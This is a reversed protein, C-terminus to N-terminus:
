HCGGKSEQTGQSGQSSPASSSFFFFICFLSTRRENYPIRCWVKTSCVRNLLRRRPSYSLLVSYLNSRPRTHRRPAFKPSRRPPPNPRRIRGELVRTLVNHPRLPRPNARKRPRPSQVAGRVTKHSPLVVLNSSLFSPNTSSPLPPPIRRCWWRRRRPRTPQPPTQQPLNPSPFISSVVTERRLFTQLISYLHPFYRSDEM